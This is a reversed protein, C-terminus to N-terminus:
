QQNITFTDGATYISLHVNDMKIEKDKTIQLHEPHRFVIVQSAGAVTAKNRHVIIATGEDIGICHLTPYMAVATLLRNYRSRVIFHMDIIASDLLGTRGTNGPERVM